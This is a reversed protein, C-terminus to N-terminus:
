IPCRSARFPQLQSWGPHCKKSVRLASCHPRRNEPHGPHFRCEVEHRRHGDHFAFFGRVLESQCDAAAAQGPPPDHDGPHDPPEADCALRQAEILQMAAFERRTYPHAEYTPTCILIMAVSECMARAIKRDIDDGGGLQEQDVFLEDEHDFYPELYCRLADALATKFRIMLDHRGHAYSFFCGYRIAMGVRGIYLASLAQESVTALAVKAAKRKRM